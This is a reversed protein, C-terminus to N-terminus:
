KGERISKLVSWFEKAYDDAIDKTMDLYVQIGKNNKDIIHVMYLIHDEGEKTYSCLTLYGNKYSLPYDNDSQILIRDVTIGKGTFQFRKEISYVTVDQKYAAADEVVVLIAPIIQVGKKNEIPNRKFTYSARSEGEKGFLYWETNPMRVFLNAEPIIYDTKFERTGNVKGGEDYFTWIGFRQGEVFNGESHKSGDERYYITKGYQLGSKFSTETSPTGNSNYEAFRGNLKGDAYNEIAELTGQSNYWRHEGVEQDDKFSGTHKLKGNVYYYEFKGDKIEPDISKLPGVMQLQNGQVFFDRRIWRGNEKRELRYFKSSKKDTVKWDKDFYVTDQGYAFGTACLLLMVIKM